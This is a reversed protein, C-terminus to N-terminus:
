EKSRVCGCGCANSFGESGQECRFRIRACAEPDQSVYKVGSADPDPCASEEAICRDGRNPLLIQIAAQEEGVPALTVASEREPGRDLRDHAALVLDTIQSSFTQTYGIFARDCSDCNSMHPWYPYADLGDPVGDGDDDTDASNVTGDGDFDWQAPDGCFYYCEADGPSPPPPLYEVVVHEGDRVPVLVIRPPKAGASAGPDARVDGVYPLPIRDRLWDTAFAFAVIRRSRDAELGASVEIVYGLDIPSVWNGALWAVPPNTRLQRRIELRSATRVELRALAGRYAELRTCDRDSVVLAQGVAPPAAFVALGLVLGALRRREIRSRKM